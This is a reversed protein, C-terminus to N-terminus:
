RFLHVTQRETYEKGENGKAQLVMFYVGESAPGNPAEGNWEVEPGSQEYVLAGYRNFVQLAYSAINNAIPRWVDNQQDGNPTFTNPLTLESSLTDPLEVLRVDDIYYYSTVIERGRYPPLPLSYPIFYKASDLIGFIIHQEGGSATFTYEAKQWNLTDTVFPFYQSHKAFLLKCQWDLLTKPDDRSIIVFANEFYGLSTDSQITQFSFRYKAGTRLKKKLKQTLYEGFHFAETISIGWKETAVGAYSSDQFPMVCGGWYNCPVAYQANPNQFGSFLDPSSLSRWPKALSLQNLHFPM